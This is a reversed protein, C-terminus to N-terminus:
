KIQNTVSSVPSKTSCTREKMLEFYKNDLEIGTFKRNLNHTAVGTTGSGAFVDLIADGEKTSAKIIRSLLEVPKQTPHKGHAKETKKPAGIIWDSRMQKGSVAKMDEYNFIHKSRENKAAWLITETAHTFYRCSLNPPPNPKIWSIENLIKYGCCQMAYGVSHINHHTGSVWITGNSKLLRQCAKLWSLNFEHMEYPNIKKDWAGKDVSVMKGSQCTIGGGSLFYPPDAFIMDFQCEDMWKMVELCDGHYLQIYGDESKYTPEM